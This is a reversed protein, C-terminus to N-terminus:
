GINDTRKKGNLVNGKKDFFYTNQCPSMKGKKSVFTIEIYDYNHKFKEIVEGIKTVLNYLQTLM